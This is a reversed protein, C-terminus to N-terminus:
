IKVQATECKSIFVFIMQIVTSTCHQIYKNPTKKVTERLLNQQPFTFISIQFLQTVMGKAQVLALTEAERKVRPSNKPSLFPCDSGCPESFTSTFLWFNSRFFSVSSGRRIKAYNVPTITWTAETIVAREAWRGSDSWRVRNKDCHLTFAM